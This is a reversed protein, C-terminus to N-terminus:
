SYRRPALHQALVHDRTDLLSSPRWCCPMLPRATLLTGLLLAPWADELLPRVLMGIFFDGIFFTRFWCPIADFMYSKPVQLM